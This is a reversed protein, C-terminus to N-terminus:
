PINAARTSSRSSAKRKGTYNISCVHQKPGNGERAGAECKACKKCLVVYSLIRKTYGGLGLNHGSTSDYARGSGMKQWAGDMSCAIAMRGTHDAVEGAKKSAEIEYQLNTTMAIKAAAVHSQGLLQETTSWGRLNTFSACIGLIGAMHGLGTLGSGSAHAYLMACHNLVYSAVSANNSECESTVRDHSIAVTNSCVTCLVTIDTALGITKKNFALKTMTIKGEQACRRCCLAEGLVQVLKDYPIVVNCKEVAPEEVTSRRDMNSEEVTPDTDAFLGFGLSDDDSIYDEDGESDSDDGNSDSDDGDSSDYEYQNADSENNSTSTSSNNVKGRARRGGHSHFDSLGELERTTRKKNNM